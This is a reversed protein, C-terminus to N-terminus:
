DLPSSDDVEDHEHDHKGHHGHKKPQFEIAGIDCQGRREEGIQDRRPCFVDNGSDIDQSDRLLPFHGNGPTGDDTFPGLGADGTLDSPQLTVACGSPDSILNHGVSGHFV